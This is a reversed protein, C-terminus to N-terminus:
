QGTVCLCLLSLLWPFASLYVCVVFVCNLDEFSEKLEEKLTHAM